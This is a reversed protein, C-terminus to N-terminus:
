DLWGLQVNQSHLRRLQQRLSAKRRDEDWLQSHTPVKRWRHAAPLKQHASLGLLEMTELAATAKAMAALVVPAAL